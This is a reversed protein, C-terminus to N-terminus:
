RTDNSPLFVGYYNWKSEEGSEVELLIKSILDAVTVDSNIVV